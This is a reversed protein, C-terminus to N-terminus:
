EVRCAGCCRMMIRLRGIVEEGGKGLRAALDSDTMRREISDAWPVVPGPMGTLPAAGSWRIGVDDRGDKGVGPMRLRGDNQAFYGEIM